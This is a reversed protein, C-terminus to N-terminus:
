KPVQTYVKFSRIPAKWNDMLSFWTLGCVM